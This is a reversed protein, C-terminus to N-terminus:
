RPRASTAVSTRVRWLGFRAVLETEGVEVWARGPTVRFPMALRRYVPDFVFAFRAGPM